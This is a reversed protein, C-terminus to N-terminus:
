DIFDKIEEGENGEFEKYGFIPPCPVMIRYNYREPRKKPFVLRDLYYFKIYLEELLSFKSLDVEDRKFAQLSLVKITKPIDIKWHGDYDLYLEQLSKCNEIGCVVSEHFTFDGVGKLQLKTITPPLILKKIARDSVLIKFDPCMSLDLVESIGVYTSGLRLLELSKPVILHDVNQCIVLKKLNVYISCDFIKDENGGVLRSQLEEISKPDYKALEEANKVEKIDETGVLRVNYLHSTGGMCSGIFTVDLCSMCEIDFRFFCFSLFLIYSKKIKKM